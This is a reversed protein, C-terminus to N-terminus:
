SGGGGGIGTSRGADAAYARAMSEAHSADGHTGSYHESLSRNRRERLVLLATAVVALVVIVVVAVVIWDM